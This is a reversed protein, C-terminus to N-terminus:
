HELAFLLSTRLSVPEDFAAVMAIVISTTPAEYFWGLVFSDHFTADFLDAVFLVGEIISFRSPNLLVNAQILPTRLHFLQQTRQSSSKERGQNM